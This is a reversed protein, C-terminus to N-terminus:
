PQNCKKNEEKNINTAPAPTAAAAPTATAAVDVIVVVGIADVVDTDVVDITNVVADVEVGEVEVCCNEAVWATIVVWVLM